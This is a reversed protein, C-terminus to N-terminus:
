GGDRSDASPQPKKSLLEKEPYDALKGIFQLFNDRHILTDFKELAVERGAGGIKIANDPNTLLRQLGAAISDVSGPEVLIANLGDTLYRNVDGISSAIVPRGTALFEGLKFPFGRDAFDSQVRVVCLIDASSITHYYDQDSLFGLYHIKKNFPSESIIRNILELREPMGKGTMLLEINDHTRAIQNFATILNEVGDKEGFSGAYLIKVPKSFSDAVPQVKRTDVSVPILCIPLKGQSIEDFKQHLYHSIVILGDAFARINRATIAVSKAKLRSLLTAGDTVLYFDEVIDVVIRIGLFRAFLVFPINEINPEGYLFMINRFGRRRSARLFRFGALLFKLWAVPLRWNAGIDAGITSYPVGKHTGSLTANDRGSHGQRLLLVSALNGPNSRVADIFHQVRKTGAMGQPYLLNGVFVVNLPIAQKM